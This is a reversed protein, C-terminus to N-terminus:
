PEKNRPNKTVLHLSDFPYENGDGDAVDPLPEPSIFLTLGAASRKPVIAIIEHNMVLMASVSALLKLHKDVRHSGPTIDPGQEDHTDLLQLLTTITRFELDDQRFKDSSEACPPSTADITM